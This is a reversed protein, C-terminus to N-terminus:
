PSAAKSRIYRATPWVSENTYCRGTPAYELVKGDRIHFINSCGTWGSTCNAFADVSVYSGVALSRGTGACSAFERGSAYNRIEVGSDTMTRVMQIRVFLPQTDLAAVPMGVWVDLDEQRVVPNACGSALLTLGVAFTVSLHKRRTSTQRHSPRTLDVGLQGAVARGRLPRWIADANLSINAM